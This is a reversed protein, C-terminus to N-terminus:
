VADFNRVVIFPVAGDPAAAIDPVRCAAALRQGGKLGSLERRAKRINVFYEEDHVPLVEVILRHLLVVAKFLARRVAIRGRRDEFPLQFVAIRADDNRGDLLQTREDFLVCPMRHRILLDDDDEILAMAAM